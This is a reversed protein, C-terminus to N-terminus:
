ADSFKNIHHQVAMQSVLNMLSDTVNDIFTYSETKRLQEHVYDRVGIASHGQKVYPLSKKTNLTNLCCRQQSKM